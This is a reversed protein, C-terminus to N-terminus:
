MDLSANRTHICSCPLYLSCIRKSLTNRSLTAVATKSDTGYLSTKQLLATCIYDKEKATPKQLRVAAKKRKRKTSFFPRQKEVHKTAPETKTAPFTQPISQRARILNIASTIYSRIEKLTGINDIKQLYGSLSSIARQVDKRVTAINALMTKDQLTELLLGEETCGSFAGTDSISEDKETCLSIDNYTASSCLPTNNAITSQLRAVLHIHKCISSKILADACNCIFMHVCINCESCRISCNHPCTSQILTVSYMNTTESSVVEWTSAQNTNHVQSFSLKLSSQHRTRIMNIRETNKGKEMKVLREFGKDRALKLLVHLCKDLRKNVRGKMYIYKLVRHFAEVYMNTNVCAEQRYCAAWQQKNHAYHTVFYKAFAVTNSSNSLDTITEKLLIEFKNKDTEELLVRLNHYVTAELTSDNLQKLNERWARDLHWICVLKHPRNNFSAVWATYFQEALDSMFWAPSINGVNQKLANFFNILLLQDERNSICWAVPFGEGYEDIVMVTILTFDYGNTGHTGDVCIIRGNSLQKMIEAQLPTQLAIVFDKDSLNDCDTPQKAGQQKYLIVPNCDTAKMEEVWIGVSTADDTHKQAGQLGYTREINTIDKRTLLHIRNFEKGLTDRINDLIHQFDVGQALQGAIATKDSELLRLHGLAKKHGYHASCVHVEIRGSDKERSVTMAATCYSNIKSTGQTKLHRVGTSRSTFTGSRNCYYYTKGCELLEKKGSAQVYWSNTKKEFDEKWTKFDLSVGTSYVHIYM